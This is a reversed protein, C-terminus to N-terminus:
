PGARPSSPQPAGTAVSTASNVDRLDLSSWDCDLLSRDVSAKFEDLPPRLVSLIDANVDWVKNTACTRSYSLHSLAKNITKKLPGFDTSAWRKPTAHGPFYDVALIDDSCIHACDARFFEIVNRAHVLTSELYANARPTCKQQESAFLTAAERLMWLEYWVHGSAKKLKDATRPARAM